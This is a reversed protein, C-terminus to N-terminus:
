VKVESGKGVLGVGGGDVRAQVNIESCRLGSYKKEAKSVAYGWVLGGLWM